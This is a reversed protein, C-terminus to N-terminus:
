KLNNLKKKKTKHCSHFFYVSKEIGILNLRAFGNPKDTFLGFISKLVDDEYLQPKSFYIM